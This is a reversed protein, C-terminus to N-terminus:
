VETGKSSQEEVLKRMAKTYDILDDMRNSIQISVFVMLLMLLVILIIGGAVISAM